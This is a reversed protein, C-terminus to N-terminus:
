SFNCTGISNNNCISRINTSCINTFWHYTSLLIGRNNSSFFKKLSFLFVFLYSIYLFSLLFIFICSFIHFSLQFEKHIDHIFIKINWERFGSNLSIHRENEKRGNLIIFLNMFTKIVNNMSLNVHYFHVYYHHCRLIFIFKQRNRQM